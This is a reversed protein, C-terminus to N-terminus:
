TQRFLLSAFENFYRRWNIWTHDGDTERYIHEIGHRRLMSRLVQTNPFAPRDDTGVGIWLKVQAFSARDDFVARHRREVTALDDPWWGASFLGVYGFARPQSLVILLAQAGGMSLGAIARFRPGKRVRLHQEVYPVIARQFDGAFKDDEAALPLRDIPAGPVHADPMVVIMPKARGAALLNDLIFGARGITSWQADNGSAGHVLYLVPYSEGSKDYGPPTYVHMRRTTGLASQYWVARVAGHDVAAESSLDSATGPVVLMSQVSASGPVTYPNRPDVVVVGDVVFTYRYPAAPLPGVTASWVGGGSSMMPVREPVRSTGFEGQVMATAAKPASLRFTVRGDAHVEPSVVPPSPQRSEQAQGPFAPEAAAAMLIVIWRALRIM